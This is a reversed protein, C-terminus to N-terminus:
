QDRKNPCSTLRKQSLFASKKTNKYSSWLTAPVFLVFFTALCNSLAHKSTKFLKGFQNFKNKNKQTEFFFYSFFLFFLLMSTAEELKNSNHGVICAVNRSVLSSTKMSNEKRALSKQSIPLILQSSTKIAALHQAMM